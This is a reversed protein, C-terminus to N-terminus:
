TAADTSSAPQRELLANVADALAESTSSRVTLSSDNELKEVEKELRQVQEIVAQKKKEYDDHLKEQEVKFSQLASELETKASELKRLAESEKQAKARKTFSFFSTKMAKVRELEGEFSQVNLTLGQIEANRRPGIERTKAAYETDIEVLLHNNDALEKAAVDLAAEGQKLEALEREVKAILRGRENVFAEDVSVAPSSEFESLVEKLNILWDDFYESFPSVAFKQEGLRKLRNLTKEAIEESTAIQPEEGLVRGRVQHKHAKTKAKEHQSKQFRQGASRRPSGQSRYGM